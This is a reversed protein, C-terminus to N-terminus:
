FIDRMKDQLASLLLRPLKELEEGISLGHPSDFDQNWIQEFDKIDAASNKGIQFAYVLCGKDILRAAAKHASGPTNSCGDTIEFILKVLKGRKIMRLQQEDIGDAVENLVGADDTSGGNGRLRTLSKVKESLERFSAGRHGFSKVKYFDKGFFYVETEIELKLPSSARQARLAENFDDLSLLAAVLAKRAADLKNEDMSGSNDMLISVEIRDPLEKMQPTLVYQEYLRLKRFSGDKQAEVFDPYGRIISDVNLHGRLRQGEKVNIEQMAKGLLLQWFRRMEEREKKMKVAYHWFMRQEDADVGYDTLDKLSGDAASGACNMQSSMAELEKLATEQEEASATFADEEGDSLNLLGEKEKNPEASQLPAADIELCWLRFFEPFLIERLFADKRELTLRRGLEDLTLRYLKKGLVMGFFSQSVEFDLPPEQEFVLACLFADCFARHAPKAQLYAPALKRSTQYDQIQAKYHTQQFVPCDKFVRLVACLEEFVRLFGSLERKVYRKVSQPQYKPVSAFGEREIKGLLYDSLEQCEGQWGEMRKLYGSPNQRWDPYLALERYLLWLIIQDDLDHNQFSELPLFMTRELPKLLFRKGEKATRYSLGSDGTFTILNREERKLFDECRLAARDLKNEDM